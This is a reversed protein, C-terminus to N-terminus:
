KKIGKQPQSQKVSMVDLEMTNQYLTVDKIWTRGGNCGKQHERSCDAGWSNQVLYECSKQDKSQRAGIITVFHNGGGNAKCNKVADPTSTYNARDFLASCMLLGVPKPDSNPNLSGMIMENYLKVSVPRPHPVCDIQDKFRVRNKEELCAPSVAGLIIQSDPNQLKKLFEELQQEASLKELSIALSKIQSKVDSFAPNQCQQNIASYFLSYSFGSFDAPKMNKRYEQLLLPANAKLYSALNTSKVVGKKLDDHLKALQFLIEAQKKVPNVSQAVTEVGAGDDKGFISTRPTDYSGSFPSTTSSNGKTIQSKKERDRIAQIEKEYANLDTNELFSLVRPCAGNKIAHKVADCANGNENFFVKDTGESKLVAKGSGSLAAKNHNLSLELASFKRHLPDVIELMTAATSAYCIGLDDQDQVTLSPITNSLDFEVSPCDVAWAHPVPM